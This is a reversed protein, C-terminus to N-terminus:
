SQLILRALWFPFGCLWVKTSQTYQTDRMAFYTFTNWLKCSININAHIYMYTHIHGTRAIRLHLALIDRRRKKKRWRFVIFWPPTRLLPFKWMKQFRLKKCSCKLVWFTPLLLLPVTPGLNRKREGGQGRSFLHNRLHWIKLFHQFMPFCSIFPFDDKCIHGM